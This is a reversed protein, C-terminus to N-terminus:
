FFRLIISLIVVLIGNILFSGNNILIRFSFLLALTNLILKIWSLISHNDSSWITYTQFLEWGFFITLATGIILRTWLFLQQIFELKSFFFLVIPTLFWRSSATWKYLIDAIKQFLGKKQYIKALKTGTMSTNKSIFHTLCLFLALAGQAIKKNDKIYVLGQACEKPTTCTIQTPISQLAYFQLHQPDVHKSILDKWHQCFACSGDYILISHPTPHSLNAETQM